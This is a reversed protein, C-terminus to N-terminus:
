KLRIVPDCRGVLDPDSSAIVVIAGARAGAQLREIVVERWHPDLAATPEDALILDPEGALARAVAVRQRQGGSLEGILQHAQDALGLEGLARDAQQAVEARALGGAQLPVAVTEHATLMAMLHLNQLVLGLAGDRWLSVPRGNLRIQGSDPEALGGLVHLLSTKGSGSPGTIAGVQGGHATLSVDRILLHDGASLTVADATLVLTEAMEMAM